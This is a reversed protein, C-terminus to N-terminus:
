PAPGSDAQFNPCEATRTNPSTNSTTSNALGTKDDRELSNLKGGTEKAALHKEMADYYSKYRRIEYELYSKKERWYSDASENGEESRSDHNRLERTDMHKLLEEQAAQWTGKWLMFQDNKNKSTTYTSMTPRQFLTSESAVGACLPAASVTAAATNIGLIWREMEEKSSAQLLYSGHNFLSLRWVFQRRHVCEAECFAHHVPVHGDPSKMNPRYFYLLHGRLRAFTVSWSRFRAPRFERIKEHKRSVIGEMLSPGAMDDDDCLEYNGYIAGLSHSLLRIPAPLSMISLSNRSNRSSNKALKNKTVRLLKTSKNDINLEVTVAPRELERERISEYFRKLAHVDFKAVDTHEQINKIFQVCTMKKKVSPTHLDTNLLVIAFTLAHCADASLLGDPNMRQYYESFLQLVRDKAQTEGILHFRSLFLRLADLLTKEKVDFHEVYARGIARATDTDAGIVSAVTSAHAQDETYLRAAKENTDSDASLGLSPDNINMKEKMGCVSSEVSKSLAM